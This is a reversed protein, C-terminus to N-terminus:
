QTEEENDKMQETVWETALETLEGAFLLAALESQPLSWLISRAAKGAASQQTERAIEAETITADNLKNSRMLTEFELESLAHLTESLHMEAQFRLSSSIKCDRWLEDNDKELQVIREKLEAITNDTM